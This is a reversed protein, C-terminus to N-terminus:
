RLLHRLLRALPVGDVLEEVLDARPLHEREVVPEARQQSQPQMWDRLWARHRVVDRERVVQVPLQAM